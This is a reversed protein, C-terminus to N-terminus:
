IILNYNKNWFDLAEQASNFRHQNIFDDSRSSPIPEIEFERTQNNLSVNNGRNISWKIGYMGPRQALTINSIISIEQLLYELVVLDSLIM